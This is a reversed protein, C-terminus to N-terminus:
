RGERQKREAEEMAKRLALAMTTPEAPTNRQTEITRDGGSEDRGGFGRDSVEERERGPRGGRGGREGRGAGGGGSGRERRGGRDERGGRESREGFRRGRDRGGERAPGGERGGGERDGFDRGAPRPRGAAADGPAGEVPAAGEPELARKVSLSLRRKAPDVQLVIAEISQGATLVERVHAVRHPAAESVHVLGDIGPAVTGFAGFDTVRAVTGTLRMGPSFRTEIGTWPDPAAARMSLAIRPKGGKGEEIKMVRVRVTQGESVVDRPNATREHRLESVHVLGDIGGLDVFAGFPEIRVVRGELEAGAALTALREKAKEEEGKRLLARRSLVASGRGEEISTVQFELTRGVYVSADAVYGAEIQSVPCFGRMGGLDVTLGGPNVGTVKGSIPIKAAFAERVQKRGSQADSKVRPALVVRDTSEVVYLDLVDGVGVKLTGDDKKFHRTEAVAESRGGFDLMVYEDGISVVTSKLRTGVGFGTAAKEVPPSPAQQDHAELARAFDSSPPDLEPDEAAPPNPSM